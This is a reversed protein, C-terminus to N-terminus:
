NFSKHQETSLSLKLKLGEIRMMTYLKKPTQTEQQLPPAVNDSILLFAFREREIFLM